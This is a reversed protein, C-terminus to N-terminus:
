IRYSSHLQMAIGNYFVWNQLKNIWEVTFLQEHFGGGNKTSVFLAVIFMETCSTESNDGRIGPSPGQFCLQFMSEPPPWKNWSHEWSFGAFSPPLLTLILDWTLDQIVNSALPAARRAKTNTMWQTLGKQPYLFLTNFSTLGILQPGNEHSPVATLWWGGVIVAPPPPTGQGPFTETSTHKSMEQTFIKSDFQPTM